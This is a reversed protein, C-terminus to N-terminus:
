SYIDNKGIMKKYLFINIFVILALFISTYIFGEDPTLSFMGTISSGLFSGLSFFGYYVGFAKGRVAQKSHKVILASSSPFVFAFGLGFLCVSIVLLTLSSAFSAVVQSIAILLLGLSLNVEYRFKEYVQNTPLVFFLIAVIGFMSILIGGIHSEMEMAVVKLPLMYALIALSASLSLVGIYSILLGGRKFLSLYGFLNSDTTDTKEEKEKQVSKLTLAIIGGLIMLIGVIIYVTETGLKSSVIGSFAPGSIAALGVAAGSLAMTKGSKKGKNYLTLYTFAAPTIVGATIGNLFRIIFLQVPSSAIAYLFMVIGNLFFGALLAKKPGKGDVFIGSFVNSFLNSLSYAGFIFGIFGTTAGLSQAYISTIPLQTFLDLFSIFILLYLLLVM